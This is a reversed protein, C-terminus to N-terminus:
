ALESLKQASQWVTTAEFEDGLKTIRATFQSLNKRLVDLSFAYLLDPRDHPMAEAPHLILAWVYNETLNQRIQAEWYDLAQTWLENHICPNMYRLKPKKDYSAQFYWSNMPVELLPRVEGSLRIDDKAPYYPQNATNKWNRPHGTASDDRRPIATSDVKFGLSEVLNLTEITHWGEGMRFTPLDFPMDKILSWIRKLEAVAQQSDTIIQPQSDDHPVTYLHPHWGLEDGRVIAQKWFDAYEDFLYDARGYAHELQGDARVYWTLPYNRLADHFQEMAFHLGDWVLNRRDPDHTNLGDPDTDITLAIYHKAM